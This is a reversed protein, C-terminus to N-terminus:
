WNNPRYNIGYDIDKHVMFGVVFKVYSPHLNDITTKSKNRRSISSKSHIFQDENILIGCHNIPVNRGYIRFLVVSGIIPKDILNFNWENQFGNFLREGQGPDKWWTAHYHRDVRKLVMGSRTHSLWILGSCDIGIASRGFHCFPTNLLRKAETIIRQAKIM